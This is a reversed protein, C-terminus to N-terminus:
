KGTVLRKTDRAIMLEEDTPVIWVQIKSNESSIKRECSRVHNLEKDLEVGMFKLYECIRRRINFQNEGVGATFTIVDIGQMSVAYKVITQAVIYCYSDVTRDAVKNGESIAEELDRFDKSICNSMGYVGSENNLVNEVEEETLHENKMLFTVILPDLDGSRSCMAIGSTPTLSMSTEVSKGNQIACLSAGQGLHCNVIKLDEVPKGMLEAIRRSVYYHSTGHFGYKRLRYKEYYRYPIPLLYREEPITQHFATDFVAVMPKGPMLEQCARIGILCAPNHVPALPICEEVAKIVDDTILVSSAFKEGGHVVRHGIADIENLDKIAQYKPNLLQKIIFDLAEKHNKVFNVIVYKEGNIKHTLSSKEDGIREYIGKAIVSENEMDILQYKVSSSGCNVVLIKM